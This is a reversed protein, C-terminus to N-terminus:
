YLNQNICKQAFYTLLHVECKLNKAISFSIYEKLGKVVKRGVDPFNLLNLIEILQRDTPVVIYVSSEFVFSM